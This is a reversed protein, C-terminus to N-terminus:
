RGYMRENRGNHFPFGIHHDTGPKVRLGAAFELLHIAPCVAEDKGDEFENEPNPQGVDKGTIAGEVATEHLVESEEAPTELDLGFEGDFGDCVPIPDNFNRDIQRHTRFSAM